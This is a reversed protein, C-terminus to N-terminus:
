ALEADPLHVAPVQDNWAGCYFVVLGPRADLLVQELLRRNQFTSWGPVAALGARVLRDPMRLQLNRELQIGWSLSWPVGMGYTCSDGVALIRLEAGTRPSDFWPGRLGLANHDPHDPELKWFLESDDAIRGAFAGSAFTFLQATRPVDVVRMAIEAVVVALLASTIAAVTRM